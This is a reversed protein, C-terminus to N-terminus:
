GGCRKTDQAHGFVVAVVCISIAIMRRGVFSRKGCPESTEIVPQGFNAVAAFDPSVLGASFAAVPRGSSRRHRETEPKGRLQNRANDDPGPNAPTEVTQ